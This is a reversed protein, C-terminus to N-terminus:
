EPTGCPPACFWQGFSRDITKTSRDITKKENPWHDGNVSGIVSGIALYFFGNVSGIALGNALHLFGNALIISFVM